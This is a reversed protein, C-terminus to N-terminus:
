VPRSLSFDSLFYLQIYNTLSADNCNQKEITFRTTTLSPWHVLFAGFFSPGGFSVSFGSDSQYQIIKLGKVVLISINIRRVLQKLKECSLNHFNPSVDLCYVSTLSM